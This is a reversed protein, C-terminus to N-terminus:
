SREMEVRGCRACETGPRVSLSMYKWQHRLLCIEEYFFDFFCLNDESVQTWIRRLPMGTGDVSYLKHCEASFHTSLKAMPWWFEPTPCRSWLSHRRLVLARCSMHVHTTIPSFLFSRCWPETLSARTKGGERPMDRGGWTGVNWPSWFFWLM